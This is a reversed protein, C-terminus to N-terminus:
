QPLVIEELALRVKQVAQAATTQFQAQTQVGSDAGTLVIVARDFRIRYELYGDSSVLLQSQDGVPTTGIETTATVPVIFAQQAQLPVACEAVFTADDLMDFARQAAQEDAFVVAYQQYDHSGNESRFWRTREIADAFTAITEAYPGCATITGAAGADLSIDDTRSEDVVFGPKFEDGTLLSADAIEDDTLAPM